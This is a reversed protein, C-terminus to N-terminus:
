SGTFADGLQSRNNNWFNFTGGGVLSISGICVAVILALLVAYEVMAVGEEDRLFSRFPQMVQAGQAQRCASRKVSSQVFRM